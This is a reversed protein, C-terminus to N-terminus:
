NLTPIVRYLSRCFRRKQTCLSRCVSDRHQAELRSWNPHRDVSLLTKLRELSPAPVDQTHELSGSPSSSTIPREPKSCCIFPSSPMHRTSGNIGIMMSLLFVVSMWMRILQPLIASFAQLFNKRPCVNWKAVPLRENEDRAFWIHWKVQTTRKWHHSVRLRPTELSRRGCGRSCWDLMAIRQFCDLNLKCVYYFFLVCMFVTSFHFWSKFFYIFHFWLFFSLLFIKSFLNGRIEKVGLHTPIRRESCRLCSLLGFKTNETRRFSWGRSLPTKILLFTTSIPPSM